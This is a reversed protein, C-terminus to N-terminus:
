ALRDNRDSEKEEGLIRRANHWAVQAWDDEALGLVDFKTLEVEIHQIPYESGFLVRGAGLQDLAARLVGTYGGSAEFLVNPHPAILEVARYDLTTAGAHGLVFTTTLYSNALRVLDAVDCGARVLCAVYVPHGAAAAVEVMAAVRPDTLPVGHVAPSIELARFQAARDRYEAVPRHPNAFYWPLFRGASGACIALVADNDPDATTYTGDVIQRSLVEPRLIGGAALAAQGIGCRDFADVLRAAARPGPALRAHVDFINM